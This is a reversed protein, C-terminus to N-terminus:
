PVARSRVGARRWRQSGAHHRRTKGARLKRRGLMRRVTVLETRQGLVAAAELARHDQESLSDARSLVLSRVSGPLTHQGASASRLLQDLFLPYGEARVICEQITESSLEPYHAALEQAEDEALPALDVTTVPCGRARARWTASIPDGEPRTTMIFLIQVTPSSPPSREWDRWSM